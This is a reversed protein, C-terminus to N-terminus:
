ELAELVAAAIGAADLGLDALLQEPKGHPVHRDDIGLTRASVSMGRKSLVQLVAEGAGGAIIGNEVTM